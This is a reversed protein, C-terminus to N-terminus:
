QLGYAKLYTELCDICLPLGYEDLEKLFAERTDLGAEGMIIKATLIETSTTLGQALVAFRQQDKESMPLDQILRAENDRGDGWLEAAAKTDPDLWLANLSVDYVGPLLMCRNMPNIEEPAIPEATGYNVLKQGEESYWFDCWRVALDAKESKEFVSFTATGTRKNPQAGLHTTQGATKMADPIPTLWAGDGLNHSLGAAKSPTTYILGAEGTLILKGHENPDSRTGYDSTFLGEAYWQRLMTLYDWFGPEAPGYKVKGDELYFGIGAMDGGCTYASIGYGASLYDGQVVGAPPLLIAESCGYAEKFTLLMNHYEDYTRPKELHQEELWDGRVYPGFDLTGGGEQIQFFSFMEKYEGDFATQSLVPDDRIANLYNPACRKVADTLDMAIEDGYDLYTYIGIMQHGYFLDCLDGANLMDTLTQSYERFSAFHYEADIGTLKGAQELLPYMGDAGPLLISITQTTDMPYSVPTPQATLADNPTPLQYVWEAQAANQCGSLATLLLALALVACLRTKKM